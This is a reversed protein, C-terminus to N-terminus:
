GLKKVVEYRFGIHENLRVIYEKQDTDYGNNTAEDIKGYSLGGPLSPDNKNKIRENVNFFYIKEHRWKKPNDKDIERIEQIESEWLYPQLRRAAEQQNMPFHFQDDGTKM